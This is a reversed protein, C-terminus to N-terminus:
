VYWGGLYECPAYSMNSSAHPSLYCTDTDGQGDVKVCGNCLDLLVQGGGEVQLCDVGDGMIISGNTYTSLAGNLEGVGCWDFRDRGRGADLHGLEAVDVAVVSDDGDGLMMGVHIIPGVADGFYVFDDRNGLEITTVESNGDM